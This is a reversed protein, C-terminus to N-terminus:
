QSPREIKTFDLPMTRDIDEKKDRYGIVDDKFIDRDPVSLDGKLIKHGQVTDHPAFPYSQPMKVRKDFGEIEAFQQPIGEKVTKSFQQNAYWRRYEKRYGEKLTGLWFQRLDHLGQRVKGM